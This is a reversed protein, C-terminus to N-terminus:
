RGNEISPIDIRIKNDMLTEAESVAFHIGGSGGFTISRSGANAVSVVLCASVRVSQGLWLFAVICIYQVPTLM